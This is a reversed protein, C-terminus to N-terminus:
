SSLRYRSKLEMLKEQLELGSMGYMRVDTVLCGARHARYSQLFEEASAFADSDVGDFRGPCMYVRASKDDDVVFVTPKIGMQTVEKVSLCHSVSLQAGKLTRNPGFNEEM